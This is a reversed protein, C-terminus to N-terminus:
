SWTASCVQPLMVARWCWEVQPLMVARWCEVLVVLAVPGRLSRSPACRVLWAGDVARGGHRVVPFSWWWCCWWAVRSAACGVVFSGREGVWGHRGQSRSRGVAVLWVLGVREILRACRVGKVTHTSYGSIRYVVVRGHAGLGDLAGGVQVARASRARSVSRRSGDRMWRAPACWPFLQARFFM